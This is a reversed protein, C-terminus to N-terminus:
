GVVEEETEKWTLIHREMIDFVKYLFLGLVSLLFVASLILNINYNEGGLVVLYGLGAKAGIMEGIVAGIMAQTVAVKMGSLLMEGSFPLEIKIFRQWANAKLITMLNYINKEISRVALVENTMVPFSVVLIVLAVKSQIGLGMWLIFLPALSIKPATQVIIVFPMVLKELFEVKALVYGLVLGLLIGWFTGLFIEELTVWIHYLMDGTRFFEIMSLLFAYPSPLLYAPIKCLVIYLEWVLLFVPIVSVPLIVNRYKQYFLRM